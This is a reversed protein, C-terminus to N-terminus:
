VDCFFPAYVYLVHRLLYVEAGKVPQEKFFDSPLLKVRGSKIAEPNERGWVGEAKQITKPLDEVVFHLSPFM